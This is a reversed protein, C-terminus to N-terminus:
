RARGSRAKSPPESRNREDRLSSFQASVAPRGAAREDDSVVNFRDLPVSRRWAATTSVASPRRTVTGSRSAPRTSTDTGPM